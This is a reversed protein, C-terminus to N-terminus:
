LAAGTMFRGFAEHWILVAWYKIVGVGHALVLLFNDFAKIPGIKLAQAKNM